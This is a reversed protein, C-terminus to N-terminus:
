VWLGVIRAFVLSVDLIILLNFTNKGGKGRVINILILLFGVCVTSEAM